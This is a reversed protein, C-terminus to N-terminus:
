VSGMAQLLIMIRLSSNQLVNLAVEDSTDGKIKGTRRKKAKVERAKIGKEAAKEFSSSYHLMDLSWLLQIANEVVLSLKANDDLAVTNAAYPMYCHELMPTTLCGDADGDPDVKAPDKYSAPLLHHFLEKAITIHAEPPLANSRQTVFLTFMQLPLLKLSAAFEEYLHNLDSRKCTSYTAASLLTFLRLRLSISEVMGTSYASTTPTERTDKPKQPTPPESVGSSMSEDEFYDGFKDNELDLVQDRKRKNSAKRPGRPEREFVEKFASSSLEGGDAVLAKLIGKIGSQRGNQQTMYMRIISEKRSTTPIEADPGNSRQHEKDRRERENWDAELVDM